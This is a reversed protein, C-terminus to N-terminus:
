YGQSAQLNRHLGPQILIKSGGAKTEQTGPSPYISAVGLKILTQAGGGGWHTRKQPNPIFPSLIATSLLLTPSAM